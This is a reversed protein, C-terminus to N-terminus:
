RNTKDLSIIDPNDISLIYIVSCYKTAKKIFLVSNLSNGHKKVVFGSFGFIKGGFKLRINISDSRRINKIKSESIGGLSKYWNKLIM